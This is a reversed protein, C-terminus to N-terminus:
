TGPGVSVPRVSGARVERLVGSERVLLAGDAAIGSAEGRRETGDPATWCVERGLLCDRATLEALVGPHLVEGALPGLGAVARALSGAVAVRDTPCGAERLSTAGSRVAEPFDEPGHLVNIGVGAVVFLPGAVDWVGECLIGGLKRRGLLLDNPWKIGVRAGCVSELAGAAAVGVLLPLIGPASQAGPRLVVSMWVGLGPASDWSRGHQGRGASQADALVVTGEPADAEALRRAVDNTSVATEYLYVAPVDWEGALARATHGEWTDASRDM